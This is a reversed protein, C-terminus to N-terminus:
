TARVSNLILYFFCLKKNEKIVTKSITQRRSSVLGLNLGLHHQSGNWRSRFSGLWFISIL